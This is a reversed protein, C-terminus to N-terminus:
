FYWCKFSPVPRQGIIHRTGASVCVSWKEFDPPKCDFHNTEKDTESSYYYKASASNIQEVENAFIATKCLVWSGDSMKCLVMKEKQESGVGEGKGAKVINWNSCMKSYLHINTSGTGEKTYLGNVEQSGAGVVFVAYPLASHITSPQAKAVSFNRSPPSALFFIDTSTKNRSSLYLKSTPDFGQAFGPMYEKVSKVEEDAFEKLKKAKRFVQNAEELRVEARRLAVIAEKQAIRAKKNRITMSYDQCFAGSQANLESGSKVTRGNEEYGLSVVQNPIINEEKLFSKYWVKDKPPETLM